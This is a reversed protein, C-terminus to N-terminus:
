ESISLSQPFTVYMGEYREFEDLSGVPLTVSSAAPLPAGTSCVVVDSVSTLETKGNFEDVTGKVRVVDGRAVDVAAPAFVFIGESTLPDSDADATEEQVFFGNLNGNDASSNNQFDGVVVGEIERVSGDLPSAAGSGQIAHIATAPDGCVLTPPPPTSACDNQPSATNRPNPAGATFDAGNNDTEACGGSNRLAATTNSLGPAPAGEFFNAGGYGVLDVIQALQATSCPASGGNCGLGTTTNALIVKGATGSMNVTGLADPTPLATTGGSGAAMQVLYYHGPALTGSLQTVPNGGFNGTGTASAYQVSMGALSVPASGRNFLEVFDNTYQAGSNGGGGYVQSVVLDSSLAFSSSAGGLVFLVAFLGVALVRKM